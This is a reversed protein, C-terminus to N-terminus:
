APDLGPDVEPSDLRKMLVGDATVLWEIRTGATWGSRDRLSKPVTIRGRSSIRITETM